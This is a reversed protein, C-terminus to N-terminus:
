GRLMFKEVMKKAKERRAQHEKLYKNITDATFKKLEGTLM